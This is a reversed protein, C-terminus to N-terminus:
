YPLRCPVGRLAHVGCQVIEGGGDIDTPQLRVALAEIPAHMSPLASQYSRVDLLAAVSLQADMAPVCRGCDM